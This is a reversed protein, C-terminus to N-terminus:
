FVTMLEETGAPSEFRAGTGHNTDERVVVGSRKCNGSIFDVMGAFVVVKPNNSGWYNKNLNNFSYFDM